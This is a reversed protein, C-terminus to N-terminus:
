RMLKEFKKMNMYQKTALNKQRNEDKFWHCKTWWSGTKEAWACIYRTTTSNERCKIWRVGNYRYLELSGDKSKGHATCFVWGKKDHMYWAGLPIHQNMIYTHADNCINIRM